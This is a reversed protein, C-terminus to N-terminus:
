WAHKGHGWGLYQPSTSTFRTLHAIDDEQQWRSPNFEDAQYYYREDRHISYQNVALLTGAPIVTGDYLRLDVMSKRIM